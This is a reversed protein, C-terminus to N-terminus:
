TCFQSGLHFTFFRLGDNPAYIHRNDLKGRHKKSRTDLTDMQRSELGIEEMAGIRFRRLRNGSVEKTHFTSSGRGARHKSWPNVQCLIHRSPNTGFCFDQPPFIELYCGWFYISQILTECGKTHPHLLPAVHM